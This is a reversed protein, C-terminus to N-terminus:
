TSLSLLTTIYTRVTRIDGCSYLNPRRMGWEAIIIAPPKVQKSTRATGLPLNYNKILSNLSRYNGVVSVILLITELKRRLSKQSLKPPCANSIIPKHNSSYWQSTM